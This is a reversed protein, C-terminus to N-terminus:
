SASDFITEEDKLLAQLVTINCNIDKFDYNFDQLEITINRDFQELSLVEKYVENNQNLLAIEIEAWVIDEKNKAINFQLYTKDERNELIINSITIDSGTNGNNVLEKYNDKANTSIFYIAVLTILIAILLLVVLLKIIKEKNM